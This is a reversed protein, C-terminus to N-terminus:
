EEKDLLDGFLRDISDDSEIKPEKEVTVAQLHALRRGIQTLVFKMVDTENKGKLKIDDKLVEYVAFVANAAEDVLTSGSANGCTVDGGEVHIM